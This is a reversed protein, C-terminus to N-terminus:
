DSGIEPYLTWYLEDRVKGFSAVLEDSSQNKTPVSGTVVSIVTRGDCLAGSVTARPGEQIGSHFGKATDCIATSAPVNTPNVLMVVRKEGGAMPPPDNFAALPSSSASLILALDAESRRAISGHLEVPLRAVDRWQAPAQGSLNAHNTIMTGCSSLLLALSLAMASVTKDGRWSQSLSLRERIISHCEDPESGASTIKPHNM